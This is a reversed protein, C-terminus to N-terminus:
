AGFMALDARYHLEFVCSGHQAFESDNPANEIVTMDINSDSDSKVVDIFKKKEAGVYIKKLLCNKRAIGALRVSTEYLPNGGKSVDILHLQVMKGAEGVLFENRKTLFFSYIEDVSTTNMWAVGGDNCINAHFNGALVFNYENLALPRNGNWDISCLPDDPKLSEKLTELEAITKLPSSPANRCKRRKLKTGVFIGNMDQSFYCMAEGNTIDNYAEEAENIDTKDDNLYAIVWQNKTEMGEPKVKKGFFDTSGLLGKQRKTCPVFESKPVEGTHYTLIGHLREGEAQKNTEAILSTYANWFLERRNHTGINKSSQKIDKLCDTLDSSTLGNVLMCIIMSIPNPTPSSLASM